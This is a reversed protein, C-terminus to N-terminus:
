LRLLLTQQRDMHLQSALAQPSEFRREERLRRHFHLRIDQGYLDGQFDLLHAEVSLRSDAFTPKLGVNVMARFRQGGWEALCAYVGHAPLAKTEPLDLNATPFGLERGRQQGRVVMGSAFYPHGLLRAAAEVNGEGLLARIRSTSVIQGRYRVAKVREVVFPYRRSFRKLLQYDGKRGRGFRQDYGIIIRKARLRGLLIEKLYRLATMRALDRTFPLFVVADLEFRQFIALKEQYTFLEAGAAPRKALVLDPHPHYTVLVRAMGSGRGLRKVLAQHGRHMGDFVGLTLACAPWPSAFDGLEHIIQM